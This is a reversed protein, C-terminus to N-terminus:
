NTEDRKVERGISILGVEKHDTMRIKGDDEYSIFFIEEKGKYGIMITKKSDRDDSDAEFAIIRTPYVIMGNILIRKYLSFDIKLLEKAKM